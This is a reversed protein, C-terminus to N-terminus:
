RYANLKETRGEGEGGFFCPKRWNGFIDRELSVEDLRCKLKAQRNGGLTQADGGAQTPVTVCM